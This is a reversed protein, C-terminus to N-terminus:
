CSSISLRQNLNYASFASYMACIAKIFRPLIGFKPLTNEMRDFEKEADTGLLVLPTKFKQLLLITNLDKILTLKARGGLCLALKTQTFSTNFSPNFESPYLKPM